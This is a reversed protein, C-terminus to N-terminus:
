SARGLIQMQGSGGLRKHLEAVGKVTVRITPESLRMEGSPEHLFPKGFKEALRGCDIQTQYAKWRNTSRNRFIWGELAMFRFLKDRGISISPDRSLVKAADAVEYDGASAALHTWASAPAELERARSEAEIRAAKERTARDEAEIVWQALERRDPLQLMERNRKMAYFERVLRKKFDRVVDSNRLYTMLLTAQEENLVAIERRQTGGATDFPAIEFGVGGFEEFDGLNNRILKLVSAHENDTGSAVILSTTTASGDESVTVLSTDHSM